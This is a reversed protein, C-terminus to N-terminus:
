ATAIDTTIGTVIEAATAGAGNMEELVEAIAQGLLYCRISVDFYEYDESLFKDIVEDSPICFEQIMERILDFNGILNKKAEQRSFTYSGSGNGTVSDDIWLTDNLEQELEEMDEYDSLNIENNVYEKVDEKIAKLYDYM